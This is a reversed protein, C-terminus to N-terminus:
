CLQGAVEATKGWMELAFWNPQDSNRSRRNVALSLSCKVTGSEFYRVEPNGGARGVLNVVNLTM